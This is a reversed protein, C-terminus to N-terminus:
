RDCSDGIQQQVAPDMSRSIPFRRGAAPLSAQIRERRGRRRERGDLRVRLPWCGLGASRWGARARGIADSGARGRAAHHLSRDRRRTWEETTGSPWIVRVSASARRSALASSCERITPRRTAATPERGGGCRRATRRARRRRARRAHRAAPQRGVLRLGIWHNRSGVDNVLLRPPGNNNAVLVDVDGDNDIDGFAAGRGVESLEFAAGAARPSTRSGATASIASCSSASTCRFRITRARAAGRDDARRRQGDAIDLWGDNDFDFWATGFGTYAAARPASARARARSRSCDRHRRQRVPQQGRRDPETMFLDEDGDNDFDGADVGM